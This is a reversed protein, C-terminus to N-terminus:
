TGYRFAAVVAEAAASTSVERHLVKAEYDELMEAIGADAHLAEVLQAEITEHLWNKAQNRRNLEFYGSRRTSREYELVDEWIEELGMGTISSCIHVPPEWGSEMPPFLRLANSFQRRARQAADQNSGDAKTIAIADAMEIIGRKIGQLEDGAGALALLLFFDVMSHVSTEAQGVGVTEVFITDYGAAESLIIIERTGAAVGGATRGSPSPRIFANPSSALTHMRTKDGLISGGSVKSTPDVALVAVRRGGEILRNGLAEIFTSKGVGPVGTIGIRLAAGSYPLCTELLEDAAARHDKRTSEVLTMARGLAARDGNRIAVLLDKVAPPTM